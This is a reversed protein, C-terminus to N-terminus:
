EDEANPNVPLVAKHRREAAAKAQDQGYYKKGSSKVVYGGNLLGHVEDLVEGDDAILWYDDFRHREWKM